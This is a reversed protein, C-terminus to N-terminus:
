LSISSGRCKGDGRMEGREGKRSIGVGRDNGVGGRGMRSEGGDKGDGPREAWLKRGGQGGRYQDVERGTEKWIGRWKDM